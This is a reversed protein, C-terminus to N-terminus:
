MQTTCARHQAIIALLANLLGAQAQRVIIVQQVRINISLQPGVLAISEQLVYTLLIILDQLTAISEQTAHSAINLKTLGKM